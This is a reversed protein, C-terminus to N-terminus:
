PRYLETRDALPLGEPPQHVVLFCAWDYFVLVWVGMPPDSVVQRFFRFVGEGREDYAFGSFLMAIDDAAPTLHDIKFAHASYDFEPYLETLLGKVIRVLYAILV